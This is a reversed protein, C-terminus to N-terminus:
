CGHVALLRAQTKPGCIGDVTLDNECQFEEVASRLAYADGGEVKGAYYGLNNLRALQGSVEEVPDLNGVLFSLPANVFPTEGGRLILAVREAPPPIRQEIQGEGDTTVNRRDGEVALTCAVGALPRDYLVELKLRLMLKPQTVEFKHRNDTARSFEKPAADPIHVLDGPFLVNPNKRQAKLSANDPHDWITHYDAFGCDCAIRAVHEGQSVKHFESV